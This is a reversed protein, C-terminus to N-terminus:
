DNAAIIGVGRLEGTIERCFNRADAGNVAPLQFIGADDLLDGSQQNAQVDAMFAVGADADCAKWERCVPLKRRETAFECVHLVNEDFGKVAIGRQTVEKGCLAM